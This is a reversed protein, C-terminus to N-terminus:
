DLRGMAARRQGWAAYVEGIALSDYVKRTMAALRDGVEHLPGDRHWAVQLRMWCPDDQLPRVAMAATPATTAQVIAVARGSSILHHQLRNDVVSHVVAPTFGASRCADLMHEPWGTGDSPPVIWAEDALDRLDVEVSRALPHATSLGAFGPETVIPRVEVQQPPRIEYGPYDAILAVDLRRAAILELLLLTSYESHITVTCDPILDEVVGLLGMMLPGEIVGLRLNTRLSRTAPTGALVDDVNSLAGRVRTLDSS